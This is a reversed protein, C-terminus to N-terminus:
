NNNNKTEVAKVSKEIKERLIILERSCNICRLKLDSGGSVVIFKDSGCPHKKKMILTDGVGFNLLKMCEENTGFPM